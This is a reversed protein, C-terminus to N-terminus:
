RGQGPGARAHPPQLGGRDRAADAIRRGPAALQGVFAPAARAVGLWVRAARVNTKADRLASRVAMVMELALAIAIAEM